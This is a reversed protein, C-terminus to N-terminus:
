FGAPKGAFVSGPVASAPQHVSQLLMMIRISTLMNFYRTTAMAPKGNIDALSSQINLLIAAAVL